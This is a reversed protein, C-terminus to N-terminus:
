GFRLAADAEELELYRLALDVPQGRDRLWEAADKLVAATSRVAVDSQPYAPFVQPGLERLRAKKVTRWLIGDREEWEQDERDEIWFGFSNGTIDGRQIRAVASMAEADKTNVDVEYSVGSPGEDLRLTGNTKRGLM